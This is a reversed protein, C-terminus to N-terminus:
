DIEELSSKLLDGFESCYMTLLTVLQIIIQPNFGPLKLQRYALRISTIHSMGEKVFRSVLASFIRNSYMSTCLM